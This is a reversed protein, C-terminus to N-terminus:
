SINFLDIIQLWIFLLRFFAWKNEIQLCNSYKAAVCVCVSLGILVNKDMWLIIIWRCWKGNTHKWTYLKNADFMVAASKMRRM